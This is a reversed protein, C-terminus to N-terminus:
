LMSKAGQSVSLIIFDESGVAEKSILGFRMAWNSTNGGLLHM